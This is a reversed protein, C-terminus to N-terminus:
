VNSNYSKGKKVKQKEKNQVHKEEPKIFFTWKEIKPVCM